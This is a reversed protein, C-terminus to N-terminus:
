SAAAVDHEGFHPMVLASKNCGSMRAAQKRFCIVVTQYATADEWWEAVYPFSGYAALSLRVRPSTMGPQTVSSVSPQPQRAENFFAVAQSRFVKKRGTM